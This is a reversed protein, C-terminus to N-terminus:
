DIQMINGSNNILELSNKNIAEEKKMGYDGGYDYILEEGIEIDKITHIIIHPFKNIKIKVAKCNQKEREKKTVKNDADRLVGNIFKSMNGRQRPDIVLNKKKNDQNKVLTFFGDFDSDEINEEFTLEGTYEFLITNQPIKELAFVGLGKLENECLKIEIPPYKCELFNRKMEFYVNITNQEADPIKECDLYPFFQPDFYVEECLKINRQKLTEFFSLKTKSIKEPDSSPVFNVINYKSRIIGYDIKISYLFQNFFRNCDLSTQTSSSDFKPELNSTSLPIQSTIKIKSNKRQNIFDKPNLRYNKKFEIAMKNSLTKGRQKENGEGCDFLYDEEDKTGRLKKLDAILTKNIQIQKHNVTISSEEENIDSFQLNAIENIKIGLNCLKVYVRHSVNRIDPLAKPKPQPIFDSKMGFGKELIKKKRRLVEINNKSQNEALFSSLSDKNESELNKEECFKRYDKVTREKEKTGTLSRQRDELEKNEYESLKQRLSLNETILNQKEVDLVQIKEELEKIKEEFFNCNNCFNFGFNITESATNNSSM